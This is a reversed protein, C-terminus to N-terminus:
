LPKRRVSQFECSCFDPKGATNTPCDLRAREVRQVNNKQFTGSHVGFGHFGTPFLTRNKGLFRTRTPALNFRFVVVCRDDNGNEVSKLSLLNRTRTMTTLYQYKNAATGSRAQIRQGIVKLSADRRANIFSNVTATAATANNSRKTQTNTNFVFFLFQVCM